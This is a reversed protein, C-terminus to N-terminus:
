RTGPINPARQVEGQVAESLNINNRELLTGTAQEYQILAKAYAARATVVNGEANALNSQAIIVDEVTASALTFKQQQMGLVQRSLAALNLAADLQSRAQQVASVAKSVDWVAQNKADQLKMQLQRQELLARAADAQATRNRIPIGLTVGYQVNPYDNQFVNAFTPRLAGGLGALNYSAYVQLQPLLSNRRAQITYEQNRLNIDAQEIEPRQRAAERM